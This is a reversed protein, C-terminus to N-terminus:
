VNDLPMLESALTTKLKTAKSHNQLPPRGKAPVPFAKPIVTLKLATNKPIEAIFMNILLLGHFYYPMANTCCRM